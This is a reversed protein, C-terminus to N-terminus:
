RTSLSAEPGARLTRPPVNGDGFWGAQGCVGIWLQGKANQVTQQLGGALAPAHALHYALADANERHREVAALRIKDVIGIANDVFHCLCAEQINSVAHLSV